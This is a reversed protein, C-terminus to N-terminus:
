LQPIPASKALWMQELNSRAIQLAPCHLLLHELDGVVQDCTNALCFGNHNDTWFRALSETRYRMSAAPNGRHRGGTGAPSLAHLSNKHMAVRICHPTPEWNHEKFHRCARSIHNDLASNIQQSEWVKDQYWVVM